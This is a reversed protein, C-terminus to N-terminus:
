EICSNQRINYHSPKTTSNSTSLNHTHPNFQSKPLPVLSSISNKIWLFAALDSLLPVILTEKTEFRSLVLFITELPASQQHLCSAPPRRWSSCVLRRLGVSALHYTWSEGSYWLDSISTSRGCRTYANGKCIAWYVLTQRQSKGVVSRRLAKGCLINGSNPFDLFPLRLITSSYM